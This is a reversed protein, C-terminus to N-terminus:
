GKIVDYAALADDRAAAHDVMPQPYDAGRKVGAERLVEEPAAWPQHIWRNPLKALEPIWRRVYAGEPDYREGQTVPNFIRFYPAADAGCGATWQWGLTNSARDADVLTDWFWAEGDQWPQLLDKVLFSAAIMRARNHMWGTHWLERMGADVMPYGTEGKQWKRLSRRNRKWPFDKFQKRLPESVTHPFHYLLHYAFERWGLERLFAETGKTVGARGTEAAFEQTRRWIQQPSIEGFHLHPSLRSTLREAPRDRGEAYAHVAHELFFDLAREAGDEGPTWADRLGGAWDPEPLLGLDDPELGTMPIDAYRARRRANRPAAPEGAALCAKWFPTFVQYPNGEGTAVEWPEFLLRGNSPKVDIGDSELARRVREDEERGEPGYRRNWYVADAGFSEVVARMEEVPDGSRIVLRGGTRRLSQKFSKLSHYLWWKSAGGAPRKASANWIYLPILPRGTKAAEFWAPQDALRLDERFWVIVPREASM